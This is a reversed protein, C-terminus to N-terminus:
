GSVETLVQVVAPRELALQFPRDALQIAHGIRSDMQRNRLLLEEDVLLLRDRGGDHQVHPGAVLDGLPLYRADHM